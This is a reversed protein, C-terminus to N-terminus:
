GFLLNRYFQMVQGSHAMIGAVYGIIYGAIVWRMVKRILVPNRPRYWEALCIAPLFTVIKVVIFPVTGMELFHALMPNGEWAIGERIWYLTTILDALCIFTIAVGEDSVTRKLPNEASDTAPVPLDM